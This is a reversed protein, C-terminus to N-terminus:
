FLLHFAFIASVMHKIAQILYERSHVNTSILLVNNEGWLYESQSFVTAAQGFFSGDTDILLAKKLGDCDM